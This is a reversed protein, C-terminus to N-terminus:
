GMLVMGFGGVEGGGGFVGELIAQRQEPRVFVSSIWFRELAERIVESRTRREM